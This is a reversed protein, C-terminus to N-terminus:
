GRRSGFFFDDFLVLFCIAVAIVGYFGKVLEPGFAWVPLHWFILFDLVPLLVVIAFFLFLELHSLKFGNIPFM